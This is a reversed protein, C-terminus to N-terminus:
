IMATSLASQNADLRDAVSHTIGKGDPQENRTQMPSELMVPTRSPDIQRALIFCGMVSLACTAAVAAQINRCIVLSDVDIQFPLHSLFPAHTKVNM